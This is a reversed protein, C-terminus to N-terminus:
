AGEGDDADAYLEDEGAAAAQQEAYLERFLGVLAEPEARDSPVAGLYQGLLEAPDAAVQEVRELDLETEPDPDDPDAIRVDVATPVAARIEDALGVRPREEVFVRLHYDDGLDAAEKTVQELTGRLTLLRKGARLPRHRVRAPGVNAIEVITAGRDSDVEGFDLALPSGAYRVTPGAPLEHPQHLHGLAVYHALDPFHQPSVHYDFIHSLREGGGTVAKGSAGVVTLHALVLDATDGRGFGATLREVVTRVRDQYKTTHQAADRDVLDVAKVIGRQSLFPILAIRAGGGKTDVEIVGGRDPPALQAAAHVGARRFLPQLAALRAANDHNGAIVVVEAGRDAFGLLTSFVLRDAGASPAATDFQDGGVLVLDVQEDEAVNLLEALVAAHEAERSRGRITRGVHWDSTHLIKM